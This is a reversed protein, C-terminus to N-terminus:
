KLNARFKGLLSNLTELEPGSLSSSLRIQNRAIVPHIEELLSLGERTISIETKRRNEPCIKRTVLGKHLLKDILRTTNSTRTVMREQIMHMNVPRTHQDKLMELVNFQEMSIGYHKAIEGFHDYLLNQTYMINLLVRRHAPLLLPTDILHEVKM